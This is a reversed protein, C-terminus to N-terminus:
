WSVVQMFGQDLTFNSVVRDPYVDCRYQGISFCHAGVGAGLRVRNEIGVGLDALGIRVEYGTEDVSGVLPIVTAIEGAPTNTPDWLFVRNGGSLIQLEYWNPLVYFFVVGLLQTADIPEWMEYRLWLVTGDTKWFGNRLDAMYANNDGQLDLSPEPLALWPLPTVEIQASGTWTSVGDDIQVDFVIRDGTFGAVVELPISTLADATNTVALPGGGVTASTAGVLNASATTASSLSVNITAADASAADGNNVLRFYLDVTEGVDAGGSADGAADDVVIAEVELVAWPVDVEIPLDWTDFGDDVSLILQVPLNSRHTPDVDFAFTGPASTMMGASMPGYSLPGPDTITVAPDISTLQANVPGATDLGVNFLDVEINVSSGPTVPDPNTRMAAIQLEPPEPLYVIASAGAVLTPTGISANFITGGFNVLFGQIFLSGSTATNEVEIWARSPGAGPPLFQAVDTLDVLMPQPTSDDINFGDSWQPTNIPGLGIRITGTIGPPIALNVSASSPSGMLISGPLLWEEGAGDDMLLEFDLYQHHGHTADITVGFPGITRTTGAEILSAGLTPTDVQVLPDSSSLTTTTEPIDLDGAALVKVYLDVSDGPGFDAPDAQISFLQAAPERAEINIDDIWWRDAPWENRWRWAVWVLSEDAWRDLSIIPTREWSETANPLAVVREFLSPEPGRTSVWLEHDGENNYLGRENWSIGIHEVGGFDVPPSILWDDVEPTGQIGEGHLASYAGNAADSETVTWQNASFGMSVRTFDEDFFSGAEFGGNYPLSRGFQIVNIHFFENPATDPLYGEGRPQGLDTAKIYYDVGAATVSGGPLEGVFDSETIGDGPDPDSGEVVHMFVTDWYPSETSRYFLTVAGLADDDTVHAVLEITTGVVGNTVEVHEVIPPDAQLPTPTEGEGDTTTCGVAFLMVAAQLFFGRRM